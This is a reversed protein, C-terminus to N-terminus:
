KNQHKEILEDLLMNIYYRYNVRKKANKIETGIEECIKIPISAKNIKNEYKIECINEEACKKYKNFDNIHIFFARNEGKRFNFIFGAIVGEYKSADTLSKIQYEKIISESFSISMANVSKMEIPFLYGNRYLIADYKNKPLVAGKKLSMPNVDRVRFYFINQDKCSTEIDIEFQKGQNKGM